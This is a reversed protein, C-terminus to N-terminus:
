GSSGDSAGSQTDAYQGSALSSHHYQHLQNCVSAVMRVPPQINEHSRCPLITLRTLDVLLSFDMEEIAIQDMVGIWHTPRITQIPAAVVSSYAMM